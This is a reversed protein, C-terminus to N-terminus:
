KNISEGKELPLGRVDLTDLAREKKLPSAVCTLRISQLQHKSEETVAWCGMSHYTSRWDTAPKALVQGFRRSQLARKSVTPDRTNITDV